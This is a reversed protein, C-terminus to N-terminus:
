RINAPRVLKRALIKCIMTDFRMTLGAVRSRPEPRQRAELDGRDLVGDVEGGHGDDGARAGEVLDARGNTGAEHRHHLHGPDRGRDREGKRLGEQWLLGPHREEVEDAEHNARVDVGVRLLLPQLRQPPLVLLRPRLRPGLVIPSGVPRAVLSLASAHTTSRIRLPSKCCSPQQM